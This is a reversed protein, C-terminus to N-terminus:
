FTPLPSSTNSKRSVNIKSVIERTLKVLTRTRQMNALPSRDECCGSNYFGMTSKSNLTKEAHSAPAGNNDIIVFKPLGKM